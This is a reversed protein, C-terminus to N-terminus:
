YRLSYGQRLVNVLESELNFFISFMRPGLSFDASAVTHNSHMRSVSAPAMFARVKLLMEADWPTVTSVKFVARLRHHRTCSLASGANCRLGLFSLREKMVPRSPSLCLCPTDELFGKSVKSRPLAFMPCFRSCAIALREHDKLSSHSASSLCLHIRFAQLHQTEVFGETKDLLRRKLAPQFLTFCSDFRFVLCLVSFVDFGELNSNLQDLTCFSTESRLLHPQWRSDLSDLLINCFLRSPLIPQERCFSQEFGFVAHCTMLKWHNAIDM